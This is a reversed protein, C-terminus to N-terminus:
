KEVGIGDRQLQGEMVQVGQSFVDVDDELYSQECRLVQCDQCLHDLLQHGTHASTQTETWDPSSRLCSMSVRCIIRMM